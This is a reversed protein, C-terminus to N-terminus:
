QDILGHERFSLRLTHYNRAVTAWKDRLAQIRAIMDELINRINSVIMDKDASAKSKKIKYLLADVRRITHGLDHEYQRENEFYEHFSRMFIKFNDNIVKPVPFFFSYKDVLGIESLVFAEEYQARRLERNGERKRYVPNLIKQFESVINNMDDSKELRDLVTSLIHKMESLLKIFLRHTSFIQRYKSESLHALSRLHKTRSRAIHPFIKGFIRTAAAFDIM